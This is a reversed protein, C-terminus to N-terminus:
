WFTNKKKDQPKISISMKVSVQYKKVTWGESFSQHAPHSPQSSSTHVSFFFFQEAAFCIMGVRVFAKERWTQRETEQHFAAGKRQVARRGAALIHWHTERFNEGPIPLKILVSWYVTQQTCQVVRHKQMLKLHPWSHKSQPLPPVATGCM